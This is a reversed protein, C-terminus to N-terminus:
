AAKQKQEFMRRYVLMAATCLLGLAAYTAWIKLPARPGEKPLHKAILPGSVQGGLWGGLAAPVFALGMYMGEKGKPAFSAVYDYFRPSFTMEALAFIAGSLCAGVIGPVVGMVLMSSSAILIGLLMSGLPSVNKMRRTVQGQFLAILAPNIITIFELPVKVGIHRTAYQPFTMYFQDSMFYFGSFIVLFLTFRADKLATGYGRITEGLGPKKVDRGREPEQYGFIALFLAVFSVVVADLTVFRLGFLTRVFFTATKGVVSGANIMRYFVAFGETQRGEPATRIVTGTIVPKMFGGAIAMGLLGVPALARSPFFFLSTYALAYLTFAIVLSRKFTIRDAITGCVVPALSAVLRYNGLWFGVELDGFGVVQSLYLSMVVFTGYFALREFLEIANAYYFTSPFKEQPAVAAALSM